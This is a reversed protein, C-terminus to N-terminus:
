FGQFSHAGDESDPGFQTFLRRFELRSHQSDRMNVRFSFRNPEDQSPPNPDLQVFEQEGNLVQTLLTSHWFLMFITYKFPLCNPWNWGLEQDFEM